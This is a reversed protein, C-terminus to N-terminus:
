VTKLWGLVRQTAGRLKAIVEEDNQGRVLVSAIPIGADIDVWGQLGAPVEPIDALLFGEESERWKAGDFRNEWMQEQTQKDLRLAAPAYLIGKGVLDAVRQPYAEPATRTEDSSKEPNLARLHETVWSVDQAIEHLEMSASWRPNVELVWLRGDARVIFDAQWLGRIGTESTVLRGFDELRQKVDQSIDRSLVSGRYIFPLPGPLEDSTVGRAVGVLRVEDRGSCFTAGISRGEVHEQLYMDESWGGKMWEALGLKRLEEKDFRRVQIGGAGVLSKSMWCQIDCDRLGSEQIEEAYLFSKPWGIGVQTSWRQWNAPSRLARLTKADVGCSYGNDLWAQVDEIRNEMGGCLILPIGDVKHSVVDDSTWNKAQAIELLDADLFEDWAEIHVVGARRLGQAAARCSAGVVVARQPVMFSQSLVSKANVGPVRVQFFQEAFLGFYHVMAVNIRQSVEEGIKGVYRCVDFEM